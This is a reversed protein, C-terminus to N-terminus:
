DLLVPDDPGAPPYQVDIFGLRSDSHTKVPGDAVQPLHSIAQESKTATDAM